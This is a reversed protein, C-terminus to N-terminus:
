ELATAPGQALINLQLLCSYQLNYLGILKSKFEMKYKFTNFTEHFLSSLAVFLNQFTKFIKTSPKTFGLHIEVLKTYYKEYPIIFLLAQFWLTM